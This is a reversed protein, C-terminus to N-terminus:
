VEPGAEDFVKQKELVEFQVRAYLQQYSTRLQENEGQLQTVTQEAAALSATLLDQHRKSTEDVKWVAKSVGGVFQDLLFHILV